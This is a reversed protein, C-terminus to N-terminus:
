AAFGTLSPNSSLGAMKLTVPAVEGLLASALSFAGAGHQAISLAGIGTSSVKITVNTIDGAATSADALGVMAGSNAVARFLLWRRVVGYLSNICSFPSALPLLRPAARRTGECGAKSAGVDMCKKLLKYM